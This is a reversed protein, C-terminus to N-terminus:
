FRGALRQIDQLSVHVSMMLFETILHADPSFAGLHLLKERIDKLSEYIDKQQADLLLSSHIRELSSKKGSFFTKFDMFSWIRIWQAYLVAQACLEVDYIDTWPELVGFDGIVDQFTLTTMDSREPSLSKWEVANQANWLNRSAPLPISIETFSFSPSRVFAISSHIDTVLGRIVLRKFSEQEAWMLWRRTLSESSDALSQEPSRAYFSAHISGARRLITIFNNSYGEAVEMKRRSGTWLAIDLWQSMTQGIQLDRLIHTNQDLSAVIAMKAKEHLAFGLKRFGPIPSMVAGAAIIITLLEPRAQDPNFSNVHIYSHRSTSERKFYFQLLLNLFKLSPFRRLNLSPDSHRLVLSYIRDRTWDEQILPLSQSFRWEFRKVVDPSEMFRAEGEALESDETYANEGRKPVWIWPSRKFAETASAILKSFNYGKLPPEKHLKSPPGVLVSDGGVFVDAASLGESAAMQDNVDGTLDLIVDQAPQDLDDFVFQFSEPLHDSWLLDSAFLGTSNDFPPKEAGDDATCDAFSTSQPSRNEGTTAREADSLESVLSLSTGDNPRGVVSAEGDAPDAALSKARM